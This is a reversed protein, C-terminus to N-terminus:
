ASAPETGSAKEGSDSEPESPAAEAEQDAAAPRKAVRGRRPRDQRPIDTNEAPSDPVREDLVPQEGPTAQDSATAPQLPEPSDAPQAADPTDAGNGGRQAEARGNGDQRGQHGHQGQGNPRPDTSDNLIRFYHEAYQYFTEASVRDGASIADRALAM